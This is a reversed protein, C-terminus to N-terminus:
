TLLWLNSKRKQKTMRRPRTGPALRADAWGSLQLSLGPGLVLAGSDYSLQCRSAPLLMTMLVDCQQTSRPTSDIDISQAQARRTRRHDRSRSIDIISPQQTGYRGSAHTMLWSGIRARASRAGPHAPEDQPMPGRRCRAAEVARSSRRPAPRPHILCRGRWRCRACPWTSGRSPSCTSVQRRGDVPM